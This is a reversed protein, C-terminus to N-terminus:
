IGGMLWGVPMTWGVLMLMGVIIETMATPGRREPPGRM